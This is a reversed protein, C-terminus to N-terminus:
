PHLSAVGHCARTHVCTQACMCAAQVQNDPQRTTPQTTGVGGCRWVLGEVSVGRARHRHTMSHRRAMATGQQQEKM